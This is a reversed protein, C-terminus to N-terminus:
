FGLHWASLGRRNAVRSAPLYQTHTGALPSLRAYSLETEFGSAAISSCRQFRMGHILRCEPFFLELGAPGASLLNNPDISPAGFGQKRQRLLPVDRGHTEWELDQATPICTSIARACFASRKRKGARGDSGIQELPSEQVGASAFCFIGKLCVFRRVSCRAMNRGHGMVQVRPMIAALLCLAYAAACLRRQLRLLLLANLRTSDGTHPTRSSPCPGRSLDCYNGELNSTISSSRLSVFSLFSSDFVNRCSRIGILEAIFKYIISTLLHNPCPSSESESM